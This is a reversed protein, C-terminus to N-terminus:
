VVFTMLDFIRKNPAEACHTLFPKVKAAFAASAIDEIAQNLPSSQALLKSNQFDEIGFPFGVDTCGSQTGPYNGLLGNRARQIAELYAKDLEFAWQEACWEDRSATTAPSDGISGFAHAGLAPRKRGSCFGHVAVLMSALGGMSSAQYFDPSAPTWPAAGTWKTLCGIASRHLNTSLIWNELGDCEDAMNSTAPALKPLRGFVTTWAECLEILWLDTGARLLPDQVTPAVDPMNSTATRASMFCATTKEAYEIIRDDQGDQLALLDADEIEEKFAAAAKELAEIAESATHLAALDEEVRIVFRVGRPWSKM